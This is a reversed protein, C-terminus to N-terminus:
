CNFITARISIFLKMGRSVRLPSHINQLGRIRIKRLLQHYIKLMIIVPRIQSRNCKAILSSAISFNREALDALEECATIFGQTQNIDSLKAFQNSHKDLLSKPLYIRNREEDEKIDRLINTLQLAIGLHKALNMSIEPNIGFVTNSLRGVSSAVRDCYLLLETMDQIQLQQISDTKMGEIVAFFDDKSFNYLNFFQHLVRTIPTTPNREFLNNIENKWVELKIIKKKPSDFSDAIDDVERCFAYIAFMTYRKEIPLLRMAWYFSTGSKKVKSVVVDIDSIEQKSDMLLNKSGM